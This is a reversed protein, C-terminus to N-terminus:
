QISLFLVQFPSLTIGKKVTAVDFRAGSLLDICGKESFPTLVSSGNAYFTEKQGGVNIICLVQESTDPSIRVIVFLSKGGDLLTQEGAPHFARSRRRAKLLTVYGSYVLSRPSTESALEEVVSEYRLKERNITRNMGTREIGEIFNGSGILSHIYIGPVGALSLMIAQSALFKAARSEKDLEKEAIADFYNINLEYPIDGQPTSKYSVRGGRRKVQEIMNELEYSDLIGHAPLVGIGDHSALFNFFTVAESPRTISSAWRSLKGVDQRLFADLVLPPLPFQYVMHAEDGGDGFYSINDNHPVNTETLLVTRPAIEDVIARFLQVIAHTKPHHISPHGIEKWVYAIADMRVMQVHHQLYFLFIDVMEILVDPNRFNLDVQDSSFTTWVHEEGRVTEFKSLLPLARPRVIMSLDTVPSATIFYDRYREDGELFRTFWESKASCHNLVLDAALRYSAGIADIQEWGGWEPHVQRYDIISFGDDSSYPFFPLIHIGNVVDQLFSDAFRKLTQLPLENSSRFQDGYTIVFADTHDLPLSSQPGGCSDCDTNTEGGSSGSHYKRLLETIKKYTASGVTEGYINHLLTQIKQM